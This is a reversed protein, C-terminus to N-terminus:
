KGGKKKARKKKAPVSAPVKGPELVGGLRDRFLQLQDDPLEEGMARAIHSFVGPQSMLRTFTDRLLPDTFFKVAAEEQGIADRIAERFWASRSQKSVSTIRDIRRVDEPDIAITVTIKRAM